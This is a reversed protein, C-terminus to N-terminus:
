LDLLSCKEGYIEPKIQILFLLGFFRELCLCQRGHNLVLIGKGVLGIVM